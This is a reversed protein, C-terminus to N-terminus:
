QEAAPMYVRDAFSGVMVTEANQFSAADEWGSDSACKADDLQISSM